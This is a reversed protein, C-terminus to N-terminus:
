LVHCNHICQLELCGSAACDRNEKIKDGTDLKFESLRDMAMNDNKSIM